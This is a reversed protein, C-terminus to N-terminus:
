YQESLFQNLLMKDGAPVDIEVNLFDSVIKVKDPQLKTKEGDYDTSWSATIASNNERIYKSETNPWGFYTFSVEPLNDALILRYQFNLIQDVTLLMNKSLPAEEYILKFSGSSQKERFLRVVSTGGKDSFIPSYSIFTMGEERGLFYYVWDGRSNKVIYPAMSSLADRLQLKSRMKAQVQDFNGLKKNWLRSYQNYNSGAILMLMSM